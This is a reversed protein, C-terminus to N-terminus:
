DRSIKPINNWNKTKSNKGKWLYIHKYPYTNWLLYADELLIKDQNYDKYSNQEVTGFDARFKKINGKKDVIYFRSDLDVRRKQAVIVTFWPGKNPKLKKLEVTNNWYRFIERQQVDGAKCDLKTPFYQTAVANLISVVPKVFSFGADYFFKGTDFDSLGLPKKRIVTTKDHTSDQLFSETVRSDFKVKTSKSVITNSQESEQDLLEQNASDVLHKLAEKGRYQKVINKDYYTVKEIVVSEDSFDFESKYRKIESENSNRLPNYKAKIDLETIEKHNSDALVVLCNSCLISLVVIISVIKKM